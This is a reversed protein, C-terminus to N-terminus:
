SIIEKRSMILVSWDYESQNSISYLALMVLYLFTYSVETNRNKLFLKGVIEPTLLSEFVSAEVFIWKPPFLFYIFIIWDLNIKDEGGQALKKLFRQSNRLVEPIHMGTFFIIICRRSVFDGELWSCLSLTLFQSVM